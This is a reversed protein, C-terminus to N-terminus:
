SNLRGSNQAVWQYLVHYTVGAAQVLDRNQRFEVIQLHMRSAARQVATRLRRDWRIKRM